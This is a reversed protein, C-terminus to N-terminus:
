KDLNSIARALTQGDGTNGCGFCYFKDTAPDYACSPTVESHFPCVGVMMRGLHVFRANIEKMTWERINRMYDEAFPVMNEIMSETAESKGAIFGKDWEKSM